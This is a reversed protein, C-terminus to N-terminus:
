PSGLLLLHSFVHRHSGSVRRPSGKWCGQRGMQKGSESIQRISKPFFKRNLGLEQTREQASEEKKGKRWLSVFQMRGKKKPINKFPANIVTVVLEERESILTKQPERCVGCATFFAPVSSYNM